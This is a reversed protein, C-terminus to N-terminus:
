AGTTNHRAGAEYDTLNDLIRQLDRELVLIQADTFGRYWIGTMEESVQVYLTELAKDKMTRRILIMRRDVPVASRELMGARDLRELMSTLTSKGLRTRRALEHIPIGDERWLVFMIRGQAPNIQDVGHEKLLRAFIRGGLQHLKAVLFGGQNQHKM